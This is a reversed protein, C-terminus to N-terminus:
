SLHTFLVFVSLYKYNYLENFIIFKISVKEMLDRTTENHIAAYSYDMPKLMLTKWLEDSSDSQAVDELVKDYKNFARRLLTAVIYVM